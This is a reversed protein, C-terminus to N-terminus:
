VAHKVTYVKSAAYRDTVEITFRTRLEDFASVAIEPRNNEASLHSLLVVQLAPHHYQRLLEMAQHNSLHGYDSSIRAKLFYPYSGTWLMEEDYNSELFLAHCQSLHHHVRNCSLGIDTFVGVSIGEHEIRFSCPEAADHKKLFSHIALNGITITDGPAFKQTDTAQQDPLIRDCTRSTMYVPIGLKKGLVKIGSCHDTHEHSVFVAKVKAPDLNKAAMRSLVQRCSIGADILVANASNGIYYCNGNSGSALACIKVM